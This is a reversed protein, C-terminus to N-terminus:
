CAVGLSNSSAPQVNSIAGTSSQIFGTKTRHMGSQEVGAQGTGVGRNAVGSQFSAAALSMGRSAISQRRGDDESALVDSHRYIYLGYVYRNGIRGSEKLSLGTFVILRWRSHSLSREGAARTPGATSTQRQGITTAGQFATAYGGAGYRM